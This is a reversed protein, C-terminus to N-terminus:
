EDKVALRYGFGRKSEIIGSGLKRRLRSVLAEVANPDREHNVAYLKESLEEKSVQANWHRSSL